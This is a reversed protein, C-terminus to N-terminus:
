PSYGRPSPGPQRVCLGTRELDEGITTKMFWAKRNPHCVIGQSHKIICTSTGRPGFALKGESRSEPPYKITVIIFNDDSISINEIPDEFMACLYRICPEAHWASSAAEAIRQRNLREVAYRLASVASYTTTLEHLDDPLNTVDYPYPSTPISPDDDNVREPFSLLLDLLPSRTRTDSPLIFDEQEEEIGPNYEHAHQTKSSIITPFVQQVSGRRHEQMAGLMALSVDLDVFDDSPEEEAMIAFRYERQGRYAIGKVFISLLIFESVSPANVIVEYPDEVYIVPGHYITQCKHRTSLTHEGDFSHKMEEERGQPGLQEAVMSGLARAFERPRYINSVHDYEDPISKWWRSEDEKSIPEISTSFLWGNKDFSVWKKKERSTKTRTTNFQFPVPSQLLASSRNLEQNLLKAEALDHPDNVTETAMMTRSAHMEEPDKILGDGYERFLAPKSIRLRKCLEIAHQRRCGKILTTISTRDAPERLDVYIPFIMHGGNDVHGGETMLFINSM